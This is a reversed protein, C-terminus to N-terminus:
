KGGKLIMQKIKYLWTEKKFDIKKKDRMVAEIVLNKIEYTGFEHNNVFTFATGGDINVVVDDKKISM